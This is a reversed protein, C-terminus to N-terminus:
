TSRLSTKAAALEAALGPDAATRRTWVRALRMLDAVGLDYESRAREIEDREIAVAIKAYATVGIPARREALEALYADDYAALLATEGREAEEAMARAWRRELAAWSAETLAQARMVAERPGDAIAAAIVACREITGPPPLPSSRAVPPPAVAVVPAATLPPRTLASPRAAPRGAAGTEFPTAPRTAAGLVVETTGGESQMARAKRAALASRPASPLGRPAFPLPARADGSVADRTPEEVLDEAPSLANPIGDLVETPADLDNPDDTSV